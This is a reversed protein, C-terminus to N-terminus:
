PNLINSVQACYQNFPSPSLAGSPTFSLAGGAVPTLSVFDDFTGGQETIDLWLEMQSLNFNGNNQFFFLGFGATVGAINEQLIWILIM